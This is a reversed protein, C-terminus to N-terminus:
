PTAQSIGPRAIAHNADIKEFELKLKAKSRPYDSEFEKLERSLQTVNRIDFGASNLLELVRPFYTKGTAYKM